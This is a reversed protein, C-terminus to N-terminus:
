FPLQEDDEDVVAFPDDLFDDIVRRVNANVKVNRCSDQTTGYLRALLEDFFTPELPNTACLPEVIWQHRYSDESVIYVEVDEGSTNPYSVKTVYLTNENSLPAKYFEGNPKTGERSAFYSNYVVKDFKVKFLPHSTSDDTYQVISSLAAMSEKEWNMRGENTRRIVTEIFNMVYKETSSLGSYDCSILGDISVGLKSAMIALVEISPTAKSDEKSLRSLYGTSVGAASELEGININKAKALHRINNLCLIKEFKM